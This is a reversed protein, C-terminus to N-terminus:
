NFYITESAEKWNQITFNGTNGSPLVKGLVINLTLRTNADLTTQLQKTLKHEKGDQTTIILDLSPMDASPFLMVTANSMSTGDEARVLDFKVTKTKNEPEATYANLSEAIDHILIQMKLIDSSFIGNDENRVIVKLGAVVRELKAEFEAETDTEHNAHVMDFVPM